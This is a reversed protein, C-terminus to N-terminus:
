RRGSGTGFGGDEERGVVEGVRVFCKAEIQDGEGRFQLGLFAGEAGEEGEGGVDEVVGVAGGAGSEVADKVEGGEADDEFIDQEAFTEAGRFGGEVDAEAALALGEEWWGGIGAGRSRLDEVDGGVGDVVVQAAPEVEVEVEGADVEDVAEETAQRLVVGQQGVVPGDEPLAKDGEQAEEGGVRWVKCDLYAVDVGQDCGQEAGHREGDDGARRKECVGSRVVIQHVLEHLVAVREGLKLRRVTKRVVRRHIDQERHRRM